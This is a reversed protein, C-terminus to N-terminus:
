VVDAYAMIFHILKYSFSFDNKKDQWQYRSFFNCIYKLLFAWNIHSARLPLHKWIFVKLYIFLELMRIVHNHSYDPYSNGNEDKTYNEDYRAEFSAISFFCFLKCCCCFHFKVSWWQQIRLLYRYSCEYLVHLCFFIKTILITDDLFRENLTMGFLICICQVLTFFNM